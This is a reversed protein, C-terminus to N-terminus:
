RPSRKLPMSSASPELGELEVLACGQVAPLRGIGLMVTGIIDPLCHAGGIVDPCWSAELDAYRM